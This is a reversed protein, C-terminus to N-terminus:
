TQFYKTRQENSGENRMLNVVQTELWIEDRVTVRVRYDLGEIEAGGEVVKDKFGRVDRCWGVQRRIGVSVM